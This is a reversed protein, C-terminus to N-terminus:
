LFPSLLLVLLTRCHFMGGGEEGQITREVAAVIFEMMGTENLFWSHSLSCFRLSVGEISEVPTYALPTSM